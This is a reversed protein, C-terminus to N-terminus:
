AAKQAGVIRNYLICSNSPQPQYVSQWSTGTHLEIHDHPGTANGEQGVKGIFHGTALTAGKYTVAEIMHAHFTYFYMWHFINWVRHAILVQNPGYDPGWLNGVGIVYGTFLNVVWSGVPAGVDIGYHYGRAYRRPPISGPIMERWYSQEIKASSKVAPVPFTFAPITAM